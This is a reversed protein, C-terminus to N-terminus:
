DRGAYMSHRQMAMVQRLGLFSQYTMMCLMIFTIEPFAFHFLDWPVARRVTESYLQLIVVLHYLTLIGALAFSISFAWKLGERPSIMICVEKFIMGGDMPIIPLLNILNWFLNMVFLLATTTLYTPNELVARGLPHSDLKLSPMDLSRMWSDWWFSDMFILGALLLFGAGPGAFAVLIRQWGHLEDYSGMAQGGLGSLTINGPQGFIRGMVVHGLEHVLVSVLTCLIWLVIFLLVGQRNGREVAGSLMYGWLANMLWFSPEICFRIGLLRWRLM